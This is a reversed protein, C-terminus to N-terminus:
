PAVKRPIFVCEGAGLRFQKKGVYFEFQGDIIYIWEDQDHHLHKPGGAHCNFEFACMAGATDKASVKCDIPEGRADKPGLIIHEGFRDDGAAISFGEFMEQASKM